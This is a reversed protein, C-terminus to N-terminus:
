LATSSRRPQKTLTWTSSVTVVQCQGKELELRLSKNYVISICLQLEFVVRAMSITKSLTMDTSIMNEVCTNHMEIAVSHSHKACRSFPLGRRQGHTLISASASREFSRLDSCPNEEEKEGAEKSSSDMSSVLMVSCFSSHMDEVVTAYEPCRSDPDRLKRISATFLSFATIDDGRPHMM